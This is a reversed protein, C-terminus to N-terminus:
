SPKQLLNDSVVPLRIPGHMMRTNNDSRMRGVWQLVLLNIVVFAIAIKTLELHCCLYQSIVKGEGGEWPHFTFAEILKTAKEYEGLQNYLTIKELYIDERGSVLQAHKDLFALRIELPKNLIKYLQDLEMLVRADKEDLSFALEMAALAQEPKKEKNYYALALNRHVTPFTNQLLASKEWCYIADKYQRKDYWYNGLYYLANADAPNISVAKQLVAVDEIRNPFVM